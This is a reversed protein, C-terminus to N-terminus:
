AVVLSTHEESSALSHMSRGPVRGPTLRPATIDIDSLKECGARSHRARAQKSTDTGGSWAAGEEDAVLAKMGWGSEIASATLRARPRFGLMRRAWFYRSPACPTMM